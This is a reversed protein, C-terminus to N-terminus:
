PPGYWDGADYSTVDVEREPREGYDYASAATDEGPTVVGLGHARLMLLYLLLSALVLAAATAWAWATRRCGACADQKAM